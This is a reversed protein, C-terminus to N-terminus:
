DVKNFSVEEGDVDIIDMPSKKMEQFRAIITKLATGINEPAERTTEIMQTLFVSTNEFSMGASEAISATKSMAYALEETDVAAVAALKSYVDVITSADQASMKFGNLAVTMNDTAKSYDLGAIKAMKLTEATLLTVEAAQRGQQYYLKSVEYVGQTAVGYQKAVSMYTDIQEWLQNTTMSTVVAIENM